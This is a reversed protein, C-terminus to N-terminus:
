SICTNKKIEELFQEYPKGQKKANCTFCCPVVNGPTYGKSSDKRDLGTVEIDVGCYHCPEGWLKGEYLEFSLSFDLGRQKANKKIHTFKGKPTRYHAKSYEKYYEKNAEYYAKSCQKCSYQLGDKTKTKRYFYELTAPKEEECKTCKKHQM